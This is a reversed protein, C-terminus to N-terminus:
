AVAAHPRFVEEFQQAAGGLTRRRKSLSDRLDQLVGYMAEGRPSLRYELWVRDGKSPITRAVVVMAQRLKKIKTALTKNDLDTKKQLESFRCPGAQGLSAIIHQCNHDLLLPLLM